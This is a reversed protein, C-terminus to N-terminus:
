HWTLGLQQNKCLQITGVKRSQGDLVDQLWGRVDDIKKKHVALEDLTTPAYKDVWPRTDDEVCQSLPSAAKTPQTSTKGGQIFRQSGRCGLEEGSRSRIDTIVQRKSRGNGATNSVSQSRQTRLEEECIADDEILDELEALDFEESGQTSRHRQDVSATFFSQIARSKSPEPDSKKSRGPKRSSKLSQEAAPPRTRIKGSRTRSPLSFSLKETSVNISFQDLSKNDLQTAATGSTSESESSSPLVVVPRKQRKAPRAAM